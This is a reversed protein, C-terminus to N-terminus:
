DLIRVKIKYNKCDFLFSEVQSPYLIFKYYCESDETYGRKICGRVAYSLVSDVKEFETERRIFVLVTITKGVFLNMM